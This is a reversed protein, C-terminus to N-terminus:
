QLVFKRISDIYAPIGMTQPINEHVANPILELTKPEPANEFVIRGQTQWPVFDDAEGHLLLFRTHIDRVRAANDLHDDIVFGGPLDLPTATHFLADASAFPAEAILCTPYTHTSSAALDISVVNGLSYGYYFLRTTDAQLSDVLYHLAARGDAYLGSGSPTGESMGFGQYDFIFCRFGMDYFYEVRDWYQEINNKNGHCYFVTYHTDLSDQRRVYFGYLTKGESQFTVVKRCSDPIVSTSLDYHNLKKQNYLYPDLSCSLLLGFSLFTLLGFAYRM